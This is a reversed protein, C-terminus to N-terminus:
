ESLGDIIDQEMGASIINQKKWLQLLALGEDPKAKIKKIVESVIEKEYEGQRREKTIDDYASQPDEGKQTRLFYEVTQKDTLTTRQKDFYEKAEKTSYKGFIVVQLWQSQNIPFQLKGSANYSGMKELGETGQLIKKLQGGGYPLAFDYVFESPNQFGGQLATIMPIGGPYIGVESRGFYKKKFTEPLLGAIFQGGAVNSFAEGAIRGMGEFWNDANSADSIARIPDPLPTRGMTKEFLTNLLFLTISTEISARIAKVPNKIINGIIEKGVLQAFTNVELQFQLPLSLVGSEFALAKEGIARSGVISSCIEDAKQMLEAGKFGQSWANDFSARWIGKTINTEIAQFPIMLVKEGKQIVSKFVEEGPALGKEGYRRLLFDSKLLPDDEKLLFSFAQSLLGKSTRISNNKLVSGAVGSVQMMASGVNGIIVNKSYRLSFNHLLEIPKRGLVRNMLARDFPNTKGALSDAADRLSFIFQNINKTRLTKHALIDAVARHRVISETLYKNNLIPNLYAEFAKGADEVFKKNGSRQLSFPNFKINPKTFESIQELAPNIDGGKNRILNWINGLEEAHTYYDKRKPILKNEPYFKSLENNTSELLANYQNRFWKDAEMINKWKPTAEQLQALNIRQEGWRMILARDTKTNVKLTNLMNRMETKLSIEERLMQTVAKERPRTLIDKVMEADKGATNEIKQDITKFFDFFRSTRSKWSVVDGMVDAAERKTTWNDIGFKKLSEIQSHGIMEDGKELNQIDDLVYTLQEATASKWEVIGSKEKLRTLVNTTLDNDYQVRGIQEKISNKLIDEKKIANKKISKYFAQQDILNKIQEKEESYKEFATRVMESDQFGLGKSLRTIESDGSGFDASLQDGIKQFGKGTGLVEPLEGQKNAFKELGRVPNTAQLEKLVKIQTDLNFVKEEASLVEKAVQKVPFIEEPIGKVVPELEKAVKGAVAKKIFGSEPNIYGAVANQSYEIVAKDAMSKLTLEDSTLPIGNKIKQGLQTKLTWADKQDLVVPEKALAEKKAYKSTLANVIPEGIKELENQISQWFTPKPAQKIIPTEPKPISANPNNPDQIYTTM